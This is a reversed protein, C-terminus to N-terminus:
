FSGCKHPPTTVFTSRTSFWGWVAPDFVKASVQFDREAGCMDRRRHIQRVCRYRYGNDTTNWGVGMKSDCYGCVALGGAMLADNPRKINRTSMNRIPPLQNLLLALAPMKTNPLTRTKDCVGVRILEYLRYLVSVEPSPEYDGEGLRTMQSQVALFLLRSVEGGIRLVNPCASAAGDDRPEQELATVCGYFWIPVGQSYRM